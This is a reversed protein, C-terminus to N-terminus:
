IVKIFFKRGSKDIFTKDNYDYEPMMFLHCFLENDIEVISGDKKNQFFKQIKEERKKRINKINKVWYTPKM